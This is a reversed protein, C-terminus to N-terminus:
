HGTRGEPYGMWLVIGTYLPFGPRREGEGRQTTRYQGAKHQDQTNHTLSPPSLALPRLGLKVRKGVGAPFPYTESDKRDPVLLPILMNM